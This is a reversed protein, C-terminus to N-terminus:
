KETVKVCGKFSDCFCDYESRLIALYILESIVNQTHYYLLWASYLTVYLNNEYLM